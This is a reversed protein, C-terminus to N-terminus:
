KLTHKRRIIIPIYDGNPRVGRGSGYIELFLIFLKLDDIHNRKDSHFIEYFTLVGANLSAFTDRFPKLINHFYDSLISDIESETVQYKQQLSERSSVYKLNSRTTMYNRAKESNEQMKKTLTSPEAKIEELLDLNMGSIAKPDIALKDDEKLSYFILRWIHFYEKMAGFLILDDKYFLSHKIVELRRPDKSTKEYHRLAVGTYLSSFVDIVDDSPDWTMIKCQVNSELFNIDNDVEWGWSFFNFAYHIMKGYMKRKTVTELNALTRDAILLDIGKVHRGIHCAVIGGLSRGYIGMKGGLKLENVLFKVVAEGDRKINYPNPSGKCAGYGRYNWVVVNNGHNMFYKLWFNHPYNVMQEYCLANPNCLIVTPRSNLMCNCDISDSDESDLNITVNKGHKKIIEDDLIMHKSHAPFFMLPVKHSDYSPAEFKIANYNYSLIYELQEFYCFVAKGLCCKKQIINELCLENFEKIEQKANKIHQINDEGDVFDPLIPKYEDDLIAFSFDHKFFSSIKEEDKDRQVTLKIGMLAKKIEVMKNTINIFLRSVNDNRSKKYYLNAELLLNLMEIGKVLDQVYKEYERENEFDRGEKM